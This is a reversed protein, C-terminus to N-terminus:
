RGRMIAEYAARVKHYFGEQATSGLREYRHLLETYRQAARRRKGEDLFMYIQELLTNLEVTTPDNEEKVPIDSIPTVSKQRRTQFLWDAFRTLWPVRRKHEIVLLKVITDLEQLLHKLEAQTYRTDTYEILGLKEVLRDSQERPTPALYVKHLESRLEEATFEYPKKLYAKFFEKALVYVEAQEVVPKRLLFAAKRRTKRATELLPDAEEPRPEGRKM